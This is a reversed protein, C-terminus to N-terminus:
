SAIILKNHILSFTIFNKLYQGFSAKLTDNILNPQALKKRM